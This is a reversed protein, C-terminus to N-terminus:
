RRPLHRHRHRAHDVAHRGTRGVQPVASTTPMGPRHLPSSGPSWITERQLADLGEYGHAGDDHGVNDQDPASSGLPSTPSSESESLPELSSSRASVPTVSSSLRFPTVSRSVVDRSRATTFIPGSTPSAMALATAQSPSRPQGPSCVTRHKIVRRRTEVRDGRRRAQGARVARVQKPDSASGPQAGVQRRAVM